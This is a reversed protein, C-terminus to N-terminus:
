NSDLGDMDGVGSECYLLPEKIDLLWSSPNSINTWSGLFVKKLFQRLFQLGLLVKVFGSTIHFPLTYKHFQVYCGSHGSSVFKHWILWLWFILHKFYHM